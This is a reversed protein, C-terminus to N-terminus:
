KRRPKKTFHLTAEFMRDKYLLQLKFHHLMAINQVIALGLGGGKQDTRNEDGTVFPECLSNMKDSLDTECRNHLTLKEDSLKMVIESDAPAHMLANVLLNDLAETLLIPDGSVVGNGETRIMFGRESIMDKHKDLLSIFIAYLDVREKILREPHTELKSLTLIDEITHNMYAIGSQISKLYHERKQTDMNMQLNEAYGSISMLPSKLDHAMTNMLTKRYDEMRYQAKFRTYTIHAFLLALLVAIIHCIVIVPWLIFGYEDFLDLSTATLLIYEHGDPGNMITTDVQYFDFLSSSYETGSSGDRHEQVQALARDLYMKTSMAPYYILGFSTDALAEDYGIVIPGLVTVDTGSKCVRIYESTDAPTYDFNHSAVKKNSEDLPVLSIEGPLFTDDKLYFEDAKIELQGFEDYTLFYMLSADNAMDADWTKWLDSATDYDCVYLQMIPEQQTNDRAFLFATRECDTVMEGTTNDYLVSMTSFVEGSVCLQWKLQNFQTGSRDGNWDNSIYEVIDNTKQSLHLMRNSRLSQTLMVCLLVCLMTCFLIAGVCKRFFVSRFTYRKAHRLYSTNKNKKM